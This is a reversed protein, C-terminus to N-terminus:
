GSVWGIRQQKITRAELADLGTQDNEDVDIDSEESHRESMTPQGTPASQGDDSSHASSTDDETRPNPAGIKNEAWAENINWTRPLHYRKNFLKLLDRTQNFAAWFEGPSNNAIANNAAQQWTQCAM